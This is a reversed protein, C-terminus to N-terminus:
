RRAKTVLLRDVLQAMADVDSATALAGGFSKRDLDELLPALATEVAPKPRGRELLERNTWADRYELDGAEGLGVVLATFYLRLALLNQGASRAANARARLDAVREQRTPEPKERPSKPTHGDREWSSTRVVHWTVIGIAVIIVIGVLGLMINAASVDTGFVGDLSHFLKRFFRRVARSLPSEHAGFESRALIDDIKARIEARPV